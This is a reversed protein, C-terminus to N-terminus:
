LAGIVRRYDAENFAKLTTSRLNGSMGLMLNFKAVTEDDPAEMIVVMDYEGMTMSFDVIKGGLKAALERAADLRKASNKVDRIGQDTWNCLAIYKAM